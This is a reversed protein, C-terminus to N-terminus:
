DFKLNAARIVGAWKTMEAGAKATIAEVSSGAAVIGLAQLRERVDAAQLLANTERNVREIAERPTGAPAFLTYNTASEYGALGAEIMTPVEPLMPARARSAVALVRLKGARIHPLHAPLSDISMPVRGSLLDPLFQATGKYPVHVLDVGAMQKFMEANLHQLGGIGSSAFSFQGPKSKALAVLEAVTKPPFDANVVLVVTGNAVEVIPAFDRRMDFSLNKHVHPAISYDVVSGMMLTYGDAASKALAAAGITAGAGPLNEVTVPQGLRAALREGIMRAVTDVGGGPPYPAIMRIPKAPYAQALVGPAACASLAAAAALTFRRRTCRTM